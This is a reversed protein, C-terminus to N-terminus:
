SKGNVRKLIFVFGDLLKKIPYAFLKKDKVYDAYVPSYKYYVDVFKTGLRNTLLYKDRFQRLIMVQPHNYDEYVATAIFCYGKRFEMITTACYPCVSKDPSGQFTIMRPVIRKNCGHCIIRDDNRDRIEQKKQIATKTVFINIAKYKTKDLKIEFEVEDNLDPASSSKWDNIHFFVDSYHQSTIIFGYGKESNYFKVTGNM